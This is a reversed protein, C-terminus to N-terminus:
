KGRRLVYMTGVAVAAVVAAVTLLGYEDWWSADEPEASPSAAVAARPVPAEVARLAASLDLAGSGDAPLCEYCDCQLKLQLQYQQRLARELAPVAHREVLTVSCGGFGGGTIRSGYVGPVQVLILNPIDVKCRPFADHANRTWVAWMIALSAFNEFVLSVQLAYRVKLAVDVLFDLEPCSVEYDHQLSRHSLTMM